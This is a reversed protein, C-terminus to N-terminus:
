GMAGPDRPDLAVEPGTGPRRRRSERLIRPALILTLGYAALSLVLTAPRGHLFDEFALKLAALWLLPHVLHRAEFLRPLRAAWALAVAVAGLVLTRLVALAGADGGAGPATAPVAHVAALLLAAGSGCALLALLLFRSLKSSRREAPTASPQLALCGAAAALVVAPLWVPDPWSHHAPAGFTWGAIRWVGSATAAAVAFLAGHLGLSARRFTRGLGANALALAAWALAPAPLLLGTAALSLVMGLAGFYHFGRRRDRDIRRFAVRYAALALLAAAIGLPLTAGSLLRSTAVAGGLGILLAAGTQALVFGDVPQRFRAVLVAFTGGYIVALSLQLPLATQPTMDRIGALAGLTVVLVAADAAAATLWSLVPWGRHWGAWATAGGAAVLVAAFPVVAGTGAMAALSTVLGGLVALWALARLGRRWCLALLLLLYVALLAAGGAPPLLRFHVTTELVLPFGLLVAAVGHALASRPRGRGAARWSLAIWLAAYPIGLLLGLPAPVAGSETLARFFYGGGLVLLTRGVYALGDVAGAPRGVAAEGTTATPEAAPEAAGLRRELAALRAQQEDVRRTLAAVQEALSGPSETVQQVTM